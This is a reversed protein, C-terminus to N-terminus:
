RSKKKLLILCIIIGITLVGATILLGIILADSIPSDHQPEPAPTPTPSKQPAAPVATPESQVGTSPANSEASQPSESPKPTDSPAPTDTPAETPSETACLSPEPTAEEGRAAARDINMFAETGAEVTGYAMGFKSIAYDENAGNVHHRGSQQSEHKAFAAKAADFASKGGMSALPEYIDFTLPNEPYLHVYCKKVEWVGYENASAPDYSPDACLKSAEIVAACVRKHQWHGYEGNVDQTFVVLPKYQRFLKVLAPILDNLTFDQDSEKRQTQPIDPFGLFMPYYTSGMTWLGCEAESIRERKSATMYAVTGVYGQEAGLIPPVAGLFLTDDDPHTAVLLYDLGEPAPTWAFFPEPLIGDSFVQVHGLTMGKKGAILQLSLAGEPILNITDYYPSVPQESLIEGDSGFTRVIVDVPLEIWQLCLARPDVGAKWTLQMSEDAKFEVFSDLYKSHLIVSANPHHGTVTLKTSSTLDKASQDAAAINPIFCLLLLMGALIISKIRKM